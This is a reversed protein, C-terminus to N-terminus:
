WVVFACLFSLPLLAIGMYFWTQYAENDKPLIFLNVVCWVVLAFGLAVRILDGPTEFVSRLTEIQPTAVRATLVALTVIFLTRFVIGGVFIGFPPKATPKRAGDM